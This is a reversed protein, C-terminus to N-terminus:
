LMGFMPPIIEQPSRNSSPIFPFMSGFVHANRGSMTKKPQSQKELVAGRGVGPEFMRGGNVNRGVGAEFPALPPFVPVFPFFPFSDSAGDLEGLRLRKGDSDAAGVPDGDSTGVNSGDNLGESTGLTSGDTDGAGDELGDATGLKSGDILEEGDMSSDLAGVAALFPFFPFFPLSEPGGVTDGAGDMAAEFPFFPFSDAAGDTDGAGDTVAEGVPLLLFLPLPLPFDESPAM